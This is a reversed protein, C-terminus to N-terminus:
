AARRQINLKAIVETGRISVRNIVLENCLTRAMQLGRGCEDSAGPKRTQWYGSPGYDHVYLNPVGDIWDLWINVTGPAHRVVNGLLEGFIVEAAFLDDQAADTGLRALFEKRAKRGCEQDSSDFIWM